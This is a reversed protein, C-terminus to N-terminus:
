ATVLTNPTIDQPMPTLHLYDSSFDAFAKLRDVDPISLTKGTLVILGQSRLAQLRRNIHVFSVGMMDGLDTQRCPLTFTNAEVLGVRDLRVLLECFLHTMHKDASRRGMNILWRRLIAEDVLASWQLARNIAPNSATLHDLTERPIMAVESRGISVVSHDMRGLVSVNLDCIDGPVLYAIISRTQDPLSKCRYAFGSQIVHVHDPNDGESIIDEKGIFKRVRVIARRVDEKDDNSLPFRGVLKMLLPDSM